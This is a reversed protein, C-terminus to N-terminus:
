NTLCTEEEGKPWLPNAEKAEKIHQDMHKLWKARVQRFVEPIQRCGSCIMIACPRSNGLDLLAECNHIKNRVKRGNGACRTTNSKTVTRKVLTGGLYYSTTESM